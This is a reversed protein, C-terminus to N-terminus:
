QELFWIHRFVFYKIHTCFSQVTYKGMKHAWNHAPTVEATVTSNSFCFCLLIKFFSINFIKMVWMFYAIETSNLYYEGILDLEILQRGSRQYVVNIILILIFALSLAFSYKLPLMKIPLFVTFLDILYIIVCLLVLKISLHFSLCNLAM